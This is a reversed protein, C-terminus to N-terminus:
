DQRRLRHLHRLLDAHRRREPFPRLPRGRHRQEALAHRSVARARVPALRARIASRLQIPGADPNKQRVRRPKRTAPTPVTQVARGLSARLEDLTFSDEGPGPAGAPQFRGDARTGSAEARVPGKRLLRNPVQAPELCYRTPANITINSNADLFGTRFTISSIHGEGTARLSLIFRLSGPPLDSQDPHPM